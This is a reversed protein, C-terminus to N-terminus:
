WWGFIVVALLIDFVVAVAIVAIIFSRGPAHLNIREESDTQMPWGSDLTSTQSRRRKQGTVRM